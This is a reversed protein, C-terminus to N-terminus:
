KNQKKWEEAQSFAERLFRLTPEHKKMIKQLKAFQENLNTTQAETQKTITFLSTVINDLMQYIDVIDTYVLKSVLVVSKAYAYNKEPVTPEMTELTIQMKKANDIKTRLYAKTKEEINGETM